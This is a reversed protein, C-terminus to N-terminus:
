WRRLTDMLTRHKALVRDIQARRAARDKKPEPRVPRERPTYGADSQEPEEGREM